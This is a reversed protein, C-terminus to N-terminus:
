RGTRAGTLPRHPRSREPTRKIEPATSTALHGPHVGILQPGPRVCRRGKRRGGAPDCPQGPAGPRRKKAPATIQPGHIDSDMATSWFALGRAASACLIAARLESSTIAAGSPVASPPGITAVRPARPM